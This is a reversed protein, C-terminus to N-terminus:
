LIVTGNVKFIVASRSDKAVVDEIGTGVIPSQPRLLPVSQRMMNSGMLARNADDNELFPILAASVSVIQNPSVDM